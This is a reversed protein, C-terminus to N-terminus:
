NLPIARPLRLVYGGTVRRVDSRYIDTWGYKNVAYNTTSVGALEYLDGVSVTGYSDIIDQMASLVAEADGRNDFIINDYDFGVSRHTGDGRRESSVNNYDRYSVKAPTYNSKKGGGGFTMRAGDCIINYIANRIWPVVVDTFIYSKVDATDESILVDACRRMLGKKKASASGNVVKTIKKQPPVSKQQREKSKNSNSKYEDM